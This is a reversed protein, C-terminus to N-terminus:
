AHKQFNQPAITRNGVGQNRAHRFLQEHDFCYTKKLSCKEPSHENGQMWWRQRWCRIVVVSRREGCTCGLRQRKRPDRCRPRTPWPRSWRRWRSRFPCGAPLSWWRGISRSKRWLALQLPRFSCAGTRARCEGLDTSWLAPQQARFEAARVSATVTARDAESGVVVEKWDSSKSFFIIELREHQFTHPFRSSAGHTHPITTNDTQQRETRRHNSNADRSALTPPRRDLAHQTHTYIRCLRRKKGKVM